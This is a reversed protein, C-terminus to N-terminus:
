LLLGENKIIRRCETYFLYRDPKSFHHLGALSLIVNAKNPELPISNFSCLNCGSLSALKQTFEFPIYEVNEPLLHIKFESDAPINVFSDGNVVNCLEVATEFEYKMVNKYTKQAYLYTNMRNVFATDYNSM